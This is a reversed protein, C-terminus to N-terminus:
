YTLNYTQGVSGADAVHELLFAAVDARSIKGVTIGTLNTLARYKGTAPGNTLAAPRVLTWDAQSRRLIEEQRDKDRYIEKLMLPQFIRDYFFGGHGRSDGAGVGTICLLRKVGNASMAALLNRTGDSFLTTPERSLKAGLSCLVAEQGALAKQLSAADRVDGQVENVGSPFATAGPRRVVATVDHGQAAAQKVLELGQPGTAGIIAIRM